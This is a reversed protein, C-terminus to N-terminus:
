IDKRNGVIFEISKRRKLSSKFSKSPIDSEKLTYNDGFDGKFKGNGIQFL